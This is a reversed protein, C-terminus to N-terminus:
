NAYKEFVVAWRRFVETELECRKAVFITVDVMVSRWDCNNGILSNRRWRRYIRM